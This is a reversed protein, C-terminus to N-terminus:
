EAGLKRFVERYQGLAKRVVKDIGEKSKEGLALGLAKLVEEKSIIYSRGIKMAKIEGSKIRKFVAIRSVRLVNAVEATSFFDKFDKM